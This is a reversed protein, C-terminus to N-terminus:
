SSGGYTVVDSVLINSHSRSTSLTLGNTSYNDFIFHNRYNLTGINDGYIVSKLADRWDRMLGGIVHAHTNPSSHLHHLSFSLYHTSSGAYSTPVHRHSSGCYHGHLLGHCTSGWLSVWQGQQHHQVRWCTLPDEQYSTRLLGLVM